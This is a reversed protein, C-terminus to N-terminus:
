YCVKVSCDEYGPAEDTTIREIQPNDLFDDLGKIEPTDDNAQMPEPMILVIRTDFDATATPLNNQLTFSITHTPSYQIFPLSAEFSGPVITGPSFYDESIIGKVSLMLNSLQYNITNFSKYLEIEVYGTDGVAEPTQIGDLKIINSLFEGDIGSAGNKAICGKFIIFNGTGDSNYEQYQNFVQTGVDLNIGGDANSMM